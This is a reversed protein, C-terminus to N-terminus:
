DASKHVAPASTAVKWLAVCPVVCCLGLSMTVGASLLIVSYVHQHRLKEEGRVWRHVCALPDLLVCAGYVLHGVGVILAVVLLRFSRVNNRAICVGLLGCHHDFHSVCVDCRRCHHTSGDGDRCAGCVQCADVRSRHCVGCSPSSSEASAVCPSVVGPDVSICRWICWGILIASLHGTRRVLHDRSQDSELLSPSMYAEALWATMLLVAYAVWAQVPVDRLSKISRWM